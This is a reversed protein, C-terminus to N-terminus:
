VYVGMIRRRPKRKGPSRTLDKVPPEQAYRRLYERRKALRADSILRLTRRRPM